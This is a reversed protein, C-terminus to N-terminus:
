SLDVALGDNKTQTAQKDLVVSLSIAASLVIRSVLSSLLTLATQFLLTGATDFYAPDTRSREGRRVSGTLGGGAYRHALRAHM